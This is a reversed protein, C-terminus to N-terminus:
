ESKFGTNGWWFKLPRDDWVGILVVLLGSEGNMISVRWM